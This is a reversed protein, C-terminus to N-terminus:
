IDAAGVGISLTAALDYDLLEVEVTEGKKVVSAHEALV